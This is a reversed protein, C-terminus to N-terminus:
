VSRHVHPVYPFSFVYNAMDRKEELFAKMYPRTIWIPQKAVQMMSVQKRHNKKTKKYVYIYMLFIRFSIKM